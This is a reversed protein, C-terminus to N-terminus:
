FRSRPHPVPSPQRWMIQRILLLPDIRSCIVAKQRAFLELFHEDNDRLKLHHSLCNILSVFRSSPLLVSIFRKVYDLRFAPSPTAFRNRKLANFGPNAGPRNCFISVFSRSVAEAAQQLQIGHSGCKCGCLTLDFRLYKVYNDSLTKIHM